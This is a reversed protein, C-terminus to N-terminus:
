YGGGPQPGQQQSPGVAQGQNAENPTVPQHAAAKVMELVQSYIQDSFDEPYGLKDEIYNLIADLFGGKALFVGPDVNAEDRLKEALSGMLQTLFAGVAQAPDQSQNIANSLQELGGNNLMKIAMRVALEADEQPYRKGQPAETQDLSAM